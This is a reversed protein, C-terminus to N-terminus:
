VAQLIIKCTTLIIILAPKPDIGPVGRLNGSARKLLNLCLGQRADLDILAEDVLRGVVLIVQDDHLRNGHDALAEAEVHNGLAYFVFPMVRQALTHTAVDYLAHVQRCRYRRIFECFLKQFLSSAVRGNFYRWM